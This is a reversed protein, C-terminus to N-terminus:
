SGPGVRSSDFRSRPSGRQQQQQQMKGENKNNSRSTATTTTTTTTATRSVKETKGRAAARGGGIWLSSDAAGWCAAQSLEALLRSDLVFFMFVMFGNILNVM